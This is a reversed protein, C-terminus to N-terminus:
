SLSRQMNAIPCGIPVSAEQGARRCQWFTVDVSAETPGYLNHLDADLRAFFREQLDSPLAEGSCIVRVLNRCRAVEPEELFVRLMSPVFHLTTIQQEAILRVLYASDRHGEPQALVLRAGALLPWFFEWVSVDFSYPMKQLVRDDPTLRYTEQMWLLRNVIGRHPIMVGKPTGTSGSTYIVYALNGPAPEDGRGAGVEGGAGEEHAHLSSPLSRSPLAPAPTATIELADAILVHPSLPCGLAALRPYIVAQTLLVPARSDALMFALRQPPYSPDLPVYAGGAALTALLAIVLDLSREMCVAVLMDPGVGCARLHDARKAARQDLQRYTLQEDAFAVAIADPTRAVQDAILEHLCTDSTAAPLAATANWAVLVQERETETLLPLDALRQDPDAVIGQLLTQWHGILRRITTAAFLDTSYQLVGFLGGAEETLSLWLDFKATGSEVELPQITLGPLTLAQAPANQLVLMVQFLPNHSMVREPQLLEVLYEFPVDQNAYAGLTVARVRHLLERFPPNGALSTRLVLTNAFLGILGEVEAQTRGAIPTGVLLDEQGSYRFLLTQFAALLTMFLTAGERVSLAELAATLAAPVTFTRYAGRFSQIAPRPHDTPLELVIPAGALHGKWYALQDALPSKNDTSRRADGARGDLWQRQWAAFDAYQIPLDPLPSPRGAAFADYLTALERVFIGISWGDSVIHHMSLLLVHAAPSLRLLMARVLPGTTLDFPRRAEQTALRQVEAERAAESLRQRDLLPLPLALSPAIVQVPRGDMAAFTTRLVEHRRCMENLSRAIAAVDLSGLLRVGGGITYAVNGPLLQDLFWLRQQAFSLPLPELRSRRPIRPAESAGSLRGRTWKELLARRAPSLNARRQALDDPQLV